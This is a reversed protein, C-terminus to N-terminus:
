SAMAQLQPQIRKLAQAATERGNIMETWAPTIVSQNMENYRPHFRIPDIARAIKTGEVLLQARANPNNGYNANVWAEVDKPIPPQRKQLNALRSGELLYKLLVWAAEREKGLNPLGAITPQVDPTAVKGKPLPAFGWDIGEPIQSTFAPASCCATTMAAKGNYFANGSGLDAGPSSSSVRDRLVLDLYKQYADIMGPSDCTVTKYDDQLWRVDWILPITNVYHGYGALGVQVQSAGQRVTLKRAAEAFQDWTWANAYTAPPEPVGAQKFLGRNYVLGFPADGGYAYPLAYLKGNFKCTLELQFQSYQNLDWKDRKVLEDLSSFLNMALNVMRATQYWALVDMTEGAAVMTALKDDNMGPTANVTWRPYQARFDALMADIDEPKDNGRIYFALTVARSSEAGSPVAATGRQAPACAALVAGAGLLKLGAQVVERRTNEM